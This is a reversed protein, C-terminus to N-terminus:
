FLDFISNSKNKVLNEYFFKKEKIDEVEEDSGYVEDGFSSFSSDPNDEEIGMDEFNKFFDKKEIINIDREKFYIRFPEM